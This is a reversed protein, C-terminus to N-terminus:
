CMVFKIVPAQGFIQYKKVEIFIKIGCFLRHGDVPNMGPCNDNGAATHAAAPAYPVMQFIIDPAGLTRNDDYPKLCVARQSSTQNIACILYFQPAVFYPYSGLNVCNTTQRGM